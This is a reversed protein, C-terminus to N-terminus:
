VPEKNTALAEFAMSVRETLPLLETMANALRQQIDAQKQALEARKELEAPSAQIDAMMEAVSAYGMAEKTFLKQAQTMQKGNNTVARIQKRLENMREAPNMTMLAMASLSTGMVANLTAAKKAGDSFKDFAKTMGLMSEIALGTVGAQAALDKFASVGEEGFSSLYGMASNFQSGMSEATLGLNEANAAMGELTSTIKSESMGFTKLLLNQAKTATGTTVGLKGMM